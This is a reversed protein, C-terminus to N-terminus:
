TWPDALDFLGSKQSDQYLISIPYQALYRWVTNYSSVLTQSYGGVIKKIEKTLLMAKECVGRISDKLSQESCNNSQLEM